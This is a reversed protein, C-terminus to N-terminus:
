SHTESPSMVAHKSSIECGASSARTRSRIASLTDHRQDLREQFGPDQGLVAIVLSVLVPVGCPPMREGSSALM